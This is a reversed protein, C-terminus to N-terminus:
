RCRVAAKRFSVHKGIRKMRMDFKKLQEQAM